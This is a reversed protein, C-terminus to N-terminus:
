FRSQDHCGLLRQRRHKRAPMQRQHMVFYKPRIKPRRMSAIALDLPAYKAFNPLFHLQPQARAPQDRLMKRFKGCSSPTPHLVTPPLSPIGWSGDGLRLLPELTYKASPHIRALSPSCSKCAPHLARHTPFQRIRLCSLRKDM